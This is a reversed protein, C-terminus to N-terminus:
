GSGSEDSTPLGTTGVNKNEKRDNCLGISTYMEVVQWIVTEDETAEDDEKDEEEGDDEGVISTV